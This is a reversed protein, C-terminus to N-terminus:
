VASFTGTQTGAASPPTTITGSFTGATESTFVFVYNLQVGPVNGTSTLVITANDADTRAYTYTGTDNGVNVGDGTITYTGDSAFALTATGTSSFVGTGSTVTVQYTKGAVSDPALNDEDDDDDGCAALGVVCMLLMLGLVM